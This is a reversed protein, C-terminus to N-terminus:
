QSDAMTTIQIIERFKLMCIVTAKISETTFRPIHIMPLNLHKAMEIAEKEQTLRGEHRHYCEKIEQSLNLFVEHSPLELNPLCQNIHLFGFQFPFLDKLKQHFELTEVVPMEEPLTVM